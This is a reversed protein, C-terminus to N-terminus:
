RPGQHAPPCRCAPVVHVMAGSALRYCAQGSAPLHRHGTGAGPGDAHKRVAWAYRAAPAATWLLALIIGAGLICLNAIVWGRDWEEMSSYALFGGAAWLIFWGTRIVGPQPVEPVEHFDPGNTDWSAAPPLSAHPQHHNQSAM